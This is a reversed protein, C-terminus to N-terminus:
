FMDQFFVSKETSIVRESLPRLLCVIHVFSLCFSFFSLLLFTERDSIGFKLVGRYTSGRQRELTSQYSKTGTAYPRDEETLWAPPRGRLSDFSCGYVAFVYSEFRRGNVFVFSWLATTVNSFVVPKESIRGRVAERLHTDPLYHFHGERYRAAALLRHPSPPLSSPSPSTSTSSQLVASPPPSPSPSSLSQPSSFTWPFTTFPLPSHFPPPSISPHYLLFLSSISPYPLSLLPHYPPLYSQITSPPPSTSM